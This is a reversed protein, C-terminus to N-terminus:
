KLFVTWFVVALAIRYLAFITFGRQSVIGIFWRITVFAVFFAAIFGVGLLAVEQGTFVLNSKMLDLGAAGLITPVALLFSFEVVTKRSIGQALGGVISAGSRSVGPVLAVTQALGIYFAEKYTIDELRRDELPDEYWYEFLLLILGGLFFSLVVVWENDLLYTKVISYFVFGIVGTPIFAAIIRAWLNFDFGVRKAFLVVVALIAGLQVVIEFTKVFETQPIALAHSALILHGTSSVPVFETIGEVIGLILADLFSM